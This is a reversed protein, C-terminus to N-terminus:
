VVGQRRKGRSRIGRNSAFRVEWRTPCFRCLHRASLVSLNKCGMGTGAVRRRVANQPRRESHLASRCRRSAPGGLREVETKAGHREDMVTKGRTWQGETEVQVKGRRLLLTEPYFLYALTAADHVYFGAVGQTERYSMSSRAMFDTLNVIFDAIGSNSVAKGVGEAHDGTFTIQMTVDLPLVVVNDCRSFVTKAAEPDCYVNFEAQPTINGGRRFAGGMVVVEKAKSLIGPHQNEAAALNTLPGVSVVTIEGPQAQLKEVIIDVSSRAKGFPRPPAPLTRSLNGVGDSGHIHAADAKSQEVTASRGVEISDFGGLALISSANAYTQSGGVNGAVTTVAVIEAYGQRALSQLWLLAFIDDGGPDTDFLIKKAAPQKENTTPM